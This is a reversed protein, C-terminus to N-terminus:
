PVTNANTARRGIVYEYPIPTMPAAPAAAGGRGGAAAPGAPISLDLTDILKNDAAEYIRIRGSKGLTPVSPITLVLHTDPNMGASKDAPYRVIPAPSRQASASAAIFLILGSFIRIFRCNM